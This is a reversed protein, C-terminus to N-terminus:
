GRFEQESEWYSNVIFTFSPSTGAITWRIRVIDSFAVTDAIRVVEIGTTTKQTFTAFTNWNTGDVSDEIVVDLTPTTGSAATVNLQVIGREVASYGELTGSNASVARTGSAVM